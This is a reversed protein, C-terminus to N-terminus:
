VSAPRKWARGMAEWEELYERLGAASQASTLVGLRELEESVVGYARPALDFHTYHVSTRRVLFDAADFVMENAVCYHM